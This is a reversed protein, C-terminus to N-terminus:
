GKVAGFTLGRVVYRQALLAAVVPPLIAVLTRVSIVNFQIGQVGTGSGILLPLTQTTPGTLILAFLFENWSFAFCILGAAVLGAAALPMAVLWFTQMRNAGDVLAAEELEFPLERFISRMILVVFPMNFTTHAIVVSTLNNLLTRSGTAMCALQLPQPLHLGWLDVPSCGARMMLLFPVIVVAPPLFRQSLFWISLNLNDPYRYRFRALAYGALTGLVLALATSVLAVILSHSAASVLGSQGTLESRWTALTPKFQVFPIFWPKYTDQLRMISNRLAWLFPFISWVTAVLLLLVFIVIQLPSRRRIV